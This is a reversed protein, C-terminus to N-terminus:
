RSVSVLINRKIRSPIKKENEFIDMVTDYAKMYADVSADEIKNGCIGQRTLSYGFLNLYGDQIDIKLSHVPTKIPEQNNSQLWKNYNAISISRLGRVKMFQKLTGRYQEKQFNLNRMKIFNKLKSFM